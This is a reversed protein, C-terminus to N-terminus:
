LRRRRHGGGMRRGICAQRHRGTRDVRVAEEWGEGAVGEGLGKRGGKRLLGVCRNYAVFGVKGQALSTLHCRGKLKGRALIFLHCCRGVKGRASFLLHLLRGGCGDLEDLETAEHPAHTKGQSGRRWPRFGGSGRGKQAHFPSRSAFCRALVAARFSSKGSSSLKDLETRGAVEIPKGEFGGFLRVFLVTEVDFFTGFAGM